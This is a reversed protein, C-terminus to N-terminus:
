TITIESLTKFMNKSFGCKGEMITDINAANFNYFCCEINNIGSGSDFINVVLHHDYFNFSISIEHIKNPRTGVRYISDLGNDVVEKICRMLGSLLDTFGFKNFSNSLHEIIKTETNM